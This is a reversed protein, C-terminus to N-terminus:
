LEGWAVQNVSRIQMQDTIQWKLMQNIIQTNSKDNAIDLQSNSKSKAINPKLM